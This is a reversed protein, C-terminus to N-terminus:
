PSGAGAPAGPTVQPSTVPTPTHFDIVEAHGGIKIPFSGWGKRRLRGPKDDFAEPPRLNNSLKLWHNLSEYWAKRPDDRVSSLKGIDSPRVSYMEMTRVADMLQAATLTGPTSADSINATMTVDGMCYAYLRDQWWHDLKSKALVDLKADVNPSPVSYILQDDIWMSTIQHEVKGFDVTALYHKLQKEAREAKVTKKLPKPATKQHWVKKSCGPPRKPM